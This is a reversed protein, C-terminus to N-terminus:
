LADPLEADRTPFIDIKTETGNEDIVIVQITQYHGRVVTTSIDVKTVNHITTRNM